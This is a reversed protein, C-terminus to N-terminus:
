KSGGPKHRRAMVCGPHSTGDPSPWEFCLDPKARRGDPRILGHLVCSTRDEDLYSCASIIEVGLSDGSERDVKCLLPSRRNRILAELRRQRPPCVIELQLDRCCAAGVAHNATKCSATACPNPAQHVPLARRPRPATALPGVL